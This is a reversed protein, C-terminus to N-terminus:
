NGVQSKQCSIEKVYTLDNQLDMYSMQGGDENLEISTISLTKCTDRNMCLNNSPDGDGAHLHFDLIQNIGVINGSQWNQFWQKRKTIDEHSYLTASAWIHMETSSIEKIYKNEGDWRCEFLRPVNYLIITFPEINYLEITRYIALMDTASLIELFVIGRSKRYPPTPLHNIFAGNLLVAANGNENIGVWSGGGKRDKPYLLTTGNVRHYSPPLAKKRSVFEDRNHTIFVKNHIPVFTVTCM